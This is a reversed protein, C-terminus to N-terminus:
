TFYFFTQLLTSKQLSITKNQGHSVQSSKDVSLPSPLGSTPNHPDSDKFFVQHCVYTM